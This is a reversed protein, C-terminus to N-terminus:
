APARRVFAVSAAGALLAFIASLVFSSRFARTLVAQVTELLDDRARRM